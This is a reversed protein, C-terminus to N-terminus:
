AFEVERRGLLEVVADHGNRKNALATWVRDDITKPVILHYHTVARTQGARYIRNRAQEYTEFSFSHSFFVDHAAATLTVGHGAAAPHCVLRQIKGAQFADIIGARETARGDIIAVSEHRDRVAAAIRDIENTFEAWIVVPRDGVEDLVECLEAVKSRGIVRARGDVIVAGGTIQRLKMAKAQVAATLTQGDALECRLEELMTRYASREEAGLSVERVVDSQPPLDLCEAKTLSWWRSRLKDVFEAQRDAIPKWGIIRERGDIARKIPFFYAYAFRWFSTGFLGPDICRMQGFYETQDNPAPTGSLLYVSDMDDSFEACARSIQSDHAKVKSSEDVVLRRVGTRRFDDGMKKFTEYNTILVESTAASALAQRRKAPTSAYVVACSLNEFHRADAAWATHLISLPALVLTKGDFGRAKADSVIALIGISKGCGPEWGIGYRPQLRGLEVAQRQHEM